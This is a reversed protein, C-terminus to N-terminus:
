IMALNKDRITCLYAIDAYGPLTRHEGLANAESCGGLM